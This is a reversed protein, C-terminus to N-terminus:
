ERRLWEVYREAGSCSSAMLEQFEEKAGKQGPKKKLRMPWAEVVTNQKRMEVGTHRAYIEFGVSKMYFAFIRDYDRVLDKGAMMKISQTSDNALKKSRDPHLYRAVQNIQASVLIMNSDNGMVRDAIECANLFLTLLVTQPNVSREKLLPVFTVLTKSLGLYAEDAINSVEIRDFGAARIETPLLCPLNAADVCYLMLKNKSVPNQLRDCFQEITSRVHFYLLGNVDNKATRHLNQTSFISRTSWGELPSASDKQLWTSNTENFLLPNPITFHELVFGIPALVGSERFRTSCLRRSGSFYCLERERYDVRHPALVVKRREQETKTMDHKADLIQLVTSWQPKYMRVTVEASGFTWKKSLLVNDAKDQIKFLVDAILKRVHKDIVVLMGHTLRASYWVHLIVEAAEVHPLQASLLLMVINRAVVNSNKDNLVSTCAGKYTIPLQSISFMLNRPDGSANNGCNAKLGENTTKINACPTVKPPIYGLPALGSSSEIDQQVIDPKLLAMMAAELETLQNQPMNLDTLPGEQGSSAPDM